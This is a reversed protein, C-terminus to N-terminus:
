LATQFFRLIMEHYHRGTGPMRILSHKAGPYTMLDFPRGLTQLRQMLLTSHTFLVNDDAMGHVLLLSGRMREAHTLVNSLRYGEANAEPMGLYRETYHTDYLSWDTVPAGAVGAKFATSTTLAMLSLYGGYSWGMIGIRSADVFPLTKLFAVGQLQDQVEIGGLRGAIATEFASGRFGSGRNDLTFVVFGNRALMQRFYGQVARTGGMWDKRVYQFHPGGYADIVVPYRKGAALNAPKQLRFYLTQGDNARLSGYEEPVHASRYPAYPHSDDLANRLLWQHVTGDLRRLSASPPQEPSSWLDLYQRAGPLLRADHWGPERSLRTVAAPNRTDLSTAYLHRELPSGENAMFYVLRRPEDIGVLGSETGDGTVMWEGATLPRILRGDLDHLYLHRYGSRRSAWIFAPREKLFRLDDHLEIWHPSTETLIVQSHGSAVDVKLLDLRKQDRTQHQVALHRSDPFWDVRALYGHLRLDLDTPAPNGIQAVKLTVRVNPTGAAPYRQRYMRAGEANIEYRETERVPTDDSRTYAIRRDDPSWWYGTDRGMEEQAIFEAVGNTVPGAGDSTVQLEEQEHLDIAFLNQDRIFSVYRGGPSFRADTEYADTSTLRTMSGAHAPLEYLYLDGDLPILLRRGDKSFEYDVIGRLSATRLRERRSQEEASLREKGGTLARSDILRRAKGLHTDFAWLDLQNKDDPRGQLYAIYRGDPSFKPNRLSAGSLDPDAFIRQISLDPATPTTGTAVPTISSIDVNTASPAASDTGTDSTATIIGGITAAM